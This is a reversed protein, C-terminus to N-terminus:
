FWGIFQESFGPVRRLFPLVQIMLDRLFIWSALALLLVAPVYLYVARWRRGSFLQQRTPYLLCFHLFLPAFLIFATNRLLAIALDLDRYTGVETFCLFVFATLSVTAFHLVYPARGGQKFLVFFGVVLFVLGIVNLYVVLPTWKHIAGLNDLDAFYTRSEEPYSPREILYHIEGGVRSDNLYMQIDRAHIVEEEKKDTLRLAILHDGPLMHARDAASGTDIAEAVIGQNTDAWRVGDWAPPQQKTRQVLNLAGAAVLLGTAMLLIWTRTTLVSG